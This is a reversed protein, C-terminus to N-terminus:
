YSATTGSDVRGTYGVSTLAARSPVPPPTMSVSTVSASDQNIMPTAATVTISETTAPNLVLTVGRAIGRAVNVRTDRRGYGVLEAIVRQQGAPVSFFAYTGDAATIVTRNGNPVRLTVTVGPLPTGDRAVVVGRIAGEPGSYPTDVVQTRNSSSSCGLIVLAVILTVRKM